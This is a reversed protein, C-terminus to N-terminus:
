QRQHDTGDHDAGANEREEGLDTQRSGPDTGAEGSRYEENGPPEDMREHAHVGKADCTEARSLEEEFIHSYQEFIDKQEPSMAGNMMDMMSMMNPMQEMQENMEPGMYCKLADFINPPESGNPFGFFHHITYQFETFKIYVALMHQMSPPTYPLMWKLIDLSPPATLSDFLSMPRPHKPDM